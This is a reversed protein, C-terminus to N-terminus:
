GLRTEVEARHHLGSKVFPYAPLFAANNQINTDREGPRFHARYEAEVLFNGRGHRGRVTFLVM